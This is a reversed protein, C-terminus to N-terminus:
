PIRTINSGNPDLEAIDGKCLSSADPVQVNM